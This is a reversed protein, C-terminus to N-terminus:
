QKGTIHERAEEAAARMAPDDDKKAIATLIPVAKEGAASVLDNALVNAVLQRLQLM